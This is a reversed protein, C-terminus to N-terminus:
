GRTRRGGSGPVSRGLRRDARILYFFAAIFGFGGWGAIYRWSRKQGGTLADSAALHWRMAAYPVTISIFGAALSWKLLGESELLMATIAGLLSAV